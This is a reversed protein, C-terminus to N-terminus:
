GRLHEPLHKRIDEETHQTLDKDIEEIVLKKTEANLADRLYGLMAPAAIIVLKSFKNQTRAHDLHHAISKAFDITAHQKPDVAKGMAHRGEGSSDFSRGPLDSTLEQEHMRGEPNTLTEIEQMSSTNQGSTYIRARAADAVVIWAMSM